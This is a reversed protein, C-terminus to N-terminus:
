IAQKRPGSACTERRSKEYTQYFMAMSKEELCSTLYFRYRSEQAELITKCFDRMGVALFTLALLAGVAQAAHLFTQGGTVESVVLAPLRLEAWALLVGLPVGAAMVFFSAPTGRLMQRYSWVANSM